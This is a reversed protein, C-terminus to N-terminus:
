DNNLYKKKWNKVNQRIYQVCQDHSPLKECKVAWETARKVAHGVLKCPPVGLLKLMEDGTVPLRYHYGSENDLELYKAVAKINAVQQPLKYEVKHSLNDAHVLLLLRNFLDKSGLEYQIRRVHHRKLKTPDEGFPKFYMHWRILAMVDKIVVKPYKLQELIEKAMKASMLEHGIFHRTGDKGISVTRGKGVDHLLAALMDVIDGGNQACIDVVSMTHQYADGFHYKNQELGVIEMFEPMIIKMLGTNVLHDIAITACPCCLMQSFESNIRETSIIELRDCNKRIGKMTKEDIEWGFRSSFRLCRLMRLPDDSFVIDPDAVTTIVGNHIDDVGRGSSDWIFGTSVNHYLANVTFDRRQADAKISGYEVVPNRSSRDVYSESRTQVCDLWENYYEKLRFSATGFRSSIIAEAYLHGNEYLWRDFGIGGDPLDVVLDIDKIPQQRMLDRVCGGVAYVHGEWETGAIIYRLHNIINHYVKIEM